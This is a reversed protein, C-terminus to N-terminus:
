LRPSRRCGRSCPCPAAIRSRNSPLGGSTPGPRSVPDVPRVSRGDARGLPREGLRDPGDDPARTGRIVALRHAVRDPRERPTIGVTVLRGRTEVIREGAHKPSGRANSTSHNPLRDPSPRWGSTESWSTLGTVSPRAVERDPVVARARYRPAGRRRAGVPRGNLAALIRPVQRVRDVGDSAREGPGGAVAPFLVRGGIRRRETPVPERAGTEGATTPCPARGPRRGKEGHAARSPIRV